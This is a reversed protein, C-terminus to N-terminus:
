AVVDYSEGAAAGAEGSSEEDQPACGTLGFSGLVGLAGMAGVGAIFSRRTLRHPAHMGNEFEAM